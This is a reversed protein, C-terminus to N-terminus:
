PIASFDIRLTPDDRAAASAAVRREARERKPVTECGARAVESDAVGLRHRAVRVLGFRLIEGGQEPWVRLAFVDIVITRGDVKGLSERARHDEKLSEFVFTHRRILCLRHNVGDPRFPNWHRVDRERALLM